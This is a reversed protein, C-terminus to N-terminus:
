KPVGRGDCKSARSSDVWPHSQPHFHCRGMEVGLHLYGHRITGMCRSVQGVNLRSLGVKVAPELTQGHTTLQFKLTQDPVEARQGGQVSEGERSRRALDYPKKTWVTSAFCGGHSCDKPQSV